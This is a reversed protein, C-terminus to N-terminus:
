PWNLVPTWAYRQVAPQQHMQFSGVFAPPSCASAPPNFARNQKRKEKRKLFLSKM